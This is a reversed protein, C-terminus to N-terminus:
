LLTEAPLSGARAAFDVATVRVDPVVVLPAEVDLPDLRDVDLPDVDLPDVDLPDVDLPDV